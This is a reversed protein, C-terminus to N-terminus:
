KAVSSTVVAVEIANDNGLRVLLPVGTTPPRRRDTVCNHTVSLRSRRVGLELADKVFIWFCVIIEQSCGDWLRVSRIAHAPVAAEPNQSQRIPKAASLRFGLERHEPLPPRTVPRSGVLPHVRLVPRPVSRKRETANRTIICGVQRLHGPQAFM